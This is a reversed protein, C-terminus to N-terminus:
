PSGTPNPKVNTIEEIKDTFALIRACLARAEDPHMDLFRAQQGLGPELLLTVIPILDDDVSALLSVIAGGNGDGNASAFCFTEDKVSELKEATVKAASAQLQELLTM